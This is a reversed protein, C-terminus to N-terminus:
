IILSIQQYIMKVPLLGSFINIQWESAMRRRTKDGKGEPQTLDPWLIDVDISSRYTSIM